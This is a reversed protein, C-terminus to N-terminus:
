KLVDVTDETSGTVTPALWNSGGNTDDGGGGGGSADTRGGCFSLPGSGAEVLAVTGALAILDAWSLGAGFTEKVPELLTLAQDLAANSPWEAQPAFRIRAGNCGGLHDTSRFTSACSWALRVM